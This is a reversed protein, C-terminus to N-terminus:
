TSNSEELIARLRNTISGVFARKLSSTDRFSLTETAYIVLSASRRYGGVLRIWRANRIDPEGFISITVISISCHWRFKM